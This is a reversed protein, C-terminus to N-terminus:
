EDGARDIVADALFFPEGDRLEASGLIEVHDGVALKIPIRGSTLIVTLEDSGILGDADIRLEKPGVIASVSRRIILKKNLYAEPHRKVATYLDEDTLRSEIVVEEGNRYAQTIEKASSVVLTDDGRNECLNWVLATVFSIAAFSRWRFLYRSGIHDGRAARLADSWLLPLALAAGLVDWILDSTTDNLSKIIGPKGSYLYTFWEIIEWIAGIAIGVSLIALSLHGLTVVRYRFLKRFCLYGVIGTIATTTLAHAGEDFGPGRTYYGFVWGLANLLMTFIFLTALRPLRSVFSAYVGSGLVLFFFTAGRGALTEAALIFGLLSLVCLGAVAHAWRRGSVWFLAQMQQNAPVSSIPSM